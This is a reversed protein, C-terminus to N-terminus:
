WGCVCRGGFVCVVSVCVSACVGVLFVCGSYVIEFVCGVCLCWVCVCVSGCVCWVVCVMCCMYVCCVCWVM